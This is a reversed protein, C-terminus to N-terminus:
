EIVVMKNFLKMWQITALHLWASWFSKEEEDMGELRLDIDFSDDTAKYRLHTM